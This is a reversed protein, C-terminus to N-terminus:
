FIYIHYFKTCDLATKHVNSMSIYYLQEICFWNLWFDDSQSGEAGFQELGQTRYLVFTRYRSYRYLSYDSNVHLRQYVPKYTGTCAPLQTRPYAGRLQGSASRVSLDARPERNYKFVQLMIKNTKKLFYSFGSCFFGGWLLRLKRYFPRDWILSKVQFGLFYQLKSDLFANTLLRFKPSSYIVGSVRYSNGALIWSEGKKGFGGRKGKDM